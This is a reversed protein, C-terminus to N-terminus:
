NTEQEEWLAEIARKVKVNRTEIAWPHNLELDMLDAIFRYKSSNWKPSNSKSTQGDYINWTVVPEDFHIASSCRDCQRIHQAVDEHTTNEPFTVMLESKICKTWPATKGSRCITQIDTEDKLAKTITRDEKVYHRLYPLRILDPEGNEQIFEYLHELVKNDCLIDDDDLFM